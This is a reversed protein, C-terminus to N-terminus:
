NEGNKATASVTVGDSNSTVTFDYNDNLVRKYNPSVTTGFLAKDFTPNFRTQTYTESTLLKDNDFVSARHLILTKPEIWLKITISAQPTASASSRRQLAIVQFEGERQVQLKQFEPLLLLPAPYDSLLM